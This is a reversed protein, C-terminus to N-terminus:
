CLEQVKRYITSVIATRIQMGIHFMRENYQSLFITQTMATLTM